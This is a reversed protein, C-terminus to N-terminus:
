GTEESTDAPVAAPQSKKSKAPPPEPDAWMGDTPPVPLAVPALEGDENPLERPAAAIDYTKGPYAVLTTGTETDLYDAYVQGEVAGIYLHRSM